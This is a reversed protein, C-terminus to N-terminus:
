GKVEPSLIELVRATIAPIMEKNIKENWAMLDGHDVTSTSIHCGPRPKRQCFDAMQKLLYFQKMLEAIEWSEKNTITTSAFQFNDNLHHIYESAIWAKKEHNYTEIKGVIFSDWHQHSDIDRAVSPNKNNTYAEVYGFGWYWGCDWKPAELWYHVGDKDVGLLYVDKGFAHSKKKSIKKM